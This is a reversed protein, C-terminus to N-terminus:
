ISILSSKCVQWDTKTIGMRLIDIFTGNNCFEERMVGEFRFGTALYTRFAPVNDAFLTLYLKNFKLEDFAIKLIEITAKKALGAGRAIPEGIFIGFEGKSSKKDVDKIFITGVDISKSGSHMEIVYQLCKGSEVYKKYYAMHQDPTIMDQSFLNKRVDDSNRWRVINDTDEPALPRLVANINDLSIM